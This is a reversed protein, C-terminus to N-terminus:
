LNLRIPNFRQPSDQPGPNIRYFQVDHSCNAWDRNVAFFANAAIGNREFNPHAEKVAQTLPVLYTVKGDDRITSVTQLNGVHDIQDIDVIEVMSVKGTPGEHLEFKGKQTGDLIEGKEKMVFYMVYGNDTHRRGPPVSTYPVSLSYLAFTDNGVMGAKFAQHQGELLTIAGHYSRTDEDRRRSDTAHFWIKQGDIPDDNRIGVSELAYKAVSYTLPSRQLLMRLNFRSLNATHRHVSISHRSKYLDRLDDNQESRIGVHDNGGIQKEARLWDTMEPFRSRFYRFEASINEPSWGSRSQFRAISNLIEVLTVNTKVVEGM